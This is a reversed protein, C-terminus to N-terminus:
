YSTAIIISSFFTIILVFLSLIYKYTKFRVIRKYLSLIIIIVGFPIFMMVHRFTATTIAVGLFFLLFTYTIRNDIQKSFIGWFLFPFFIVQLIASLSIYLQHFSGFNPVPSFLIFILRPIIGITLPLEFIKSGINGMREANISSYREAQSLLILLYDYMFFYTIAAFILAILIGQKIISKLDFSLLLIMFISIFFTSTRFFFLVALLPLLKIYNIFTKKRVLLHYFIYVLLFSVITDRFVHVSNFLMVPFFFVSYLTWRKVKESKTYFSAIQSSYFSTLALIFINFIRPLLTHYGDLFSSFYRLIIILAVYGKSNHLFGLGSELSNLHEPIKLINIGYSEIFNNSWYQDFQWDDSQIGQFYPLGYVINWYHYFFLVAVTGISFLLLTDSIDNKTTRYLFYSSIMLLVIPSFKSTTLIIVIFSIILSIIAIHFKVKKTM